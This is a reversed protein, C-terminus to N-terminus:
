TCIILMPANNRNDGFSRFLSVRLFMDSLIVIFGVLIALVGALRIDYNKVHSLEHAIVGELEADNMMNLLGTTAAVVAHKPIVAQQLHM